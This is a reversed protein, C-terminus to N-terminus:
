IPKRAFFPHASHPQILAATKTATAQGQAEDNLSRFRPAPPTFHNENQLEAFRSPSKKRRGAAAAAVAQVPILGTRIVHLINNGAPNRRKEMENM